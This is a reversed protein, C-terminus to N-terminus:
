RKNLFPTYIENLIDLIKETMRFKGESEAQDAGAANQRNFRESDAEDSLKLVREISQQVAGKLKDNELRLEEKKRLTCGFECTEYDQNHQCMAM